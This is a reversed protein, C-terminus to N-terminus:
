AAHRDRDERPIISIGGGRELVAYKIQAMRELGHHQRAAALVDSEDVRAKDMRDRLPQGNEVIVLPVGDLWREVRPARQKWISLAIDIAILTVILVLANAISYDDGVMANQAAESIILLLVLDFTTIHALARNGSVRFLLLLIFYITAARLITEM